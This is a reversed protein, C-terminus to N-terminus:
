IKHLCQDIWSWYGKPRCHEKFLAYVNEGIVRCSERNSKCWEIMELLDSYDPKCQLYHEGPILRKNFPLHTDVPPAIVCVGLAMQEYHGRDLMNNRAGPVCVAVLCNRHKDWFQEQGRSFTVDANYGYKQLLLQQVHRRREKAGLWARQCNLIVDSNCEYIKEDCLRFFKEYMSIEAIDLMPGIPFMSPIDGHVKANYHFKFCPLGHCPFALPEHDSYDVIVQRGDILMSFYTGTGCYVTDTRRAKKVEIGALEAYKIVFMYHTAYEHLKVHSEHDPFIIESIM